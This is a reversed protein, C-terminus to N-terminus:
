SESESIFFIAGVEWGALATVKAKNRIGVKDKPSLKMRTLAAWMAAKDEGSLVQRLHEM